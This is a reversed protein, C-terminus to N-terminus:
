TRRSQQEHQRREDRVVEHCRGDLAPRSRGGAGSAECQILAGDRRDGVVVFAVVLRAVNVAQAMAWVKWREASM